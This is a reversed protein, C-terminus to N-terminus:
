AHPAHLIGDGAEQIAEETHHLHQLTGTDRSLLTSQRICGSFAPGTADLNASTPSVSSTGLGTFSTGVLLPTQSQLKPCWGTCSQGFGRHVM